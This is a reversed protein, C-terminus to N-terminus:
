KDGAETALLARAKDLWETMSARDDPDDIMTIALELAEVLEANVERLRALEARTDHLKAPTAADLLTDLAALAEDDTADSDGVISAMDTIVAWIAENYISTTM